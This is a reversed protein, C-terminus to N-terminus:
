PPHHTRHTHPPFPAAPSFVATDLCALLVLLPHHSPPCRGAPTASDLPQTPLNGLRRKAFAVWCGVCLKQSWVKLWPPDTLSEERRGAHNRYPYQGVIQIHHSRLPATTVVGQQLTMNRGVHTTTGDSSKPGQHAEQPKRKPNNQQQKKARSKKESSSHAAQRLASVQGRRNSSSLWVDRPPEVVGLAQTINQEVRGHIDRKEVRFVVGCM